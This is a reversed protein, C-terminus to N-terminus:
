LQMLTYGKHGYIIVDSLASLTITVDKDVWAHELSLEALAQGCVEVNVGARKLAAILAINPNDMHYKARYHANDLVAYTAPGHLVAVFKLHSLPVGASAFINVVKAVRDLASSPKAADRIPATIDFVTKYTTSKDPQMAAHPLPHMRGYGPIAPYAWRPEAADAISSVGALAFAAALGLVTFFRTDM